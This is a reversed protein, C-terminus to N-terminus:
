QQALSLGMGCMVMLLTVATIFHSFHHKLVLSNLGRPPLCFSTSLHLSQTILLLGIDLAEGLM